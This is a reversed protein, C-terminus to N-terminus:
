RGGLVSPRQELHKEMELLPVGQELWEPAEEGKLYHDLYEMMRVAYDIQNATKRLGHNEGEYQLMIVPKKLRRLTNYYEIGQTFDVAGDEDNHMLLLPTNVNQAFYVPSNRKFAEWNDWYGPTLRGQSSEFIPQNTSGTNWYILSYMSIMNTLPAGAVAARFMDTQTILFSTQYGGWSHGHIAINDPDIVGTELAADVAPLVCWVASMGPDNLKYVIDPMLVAYGNSTYMARNFGGGPFSPRSYSNLGQTLREYIYVVTPYQKGEEYGAPLFLAAQLTDGQDSIFSILRSGPSLAFDEQEPYTQTLKRAGTLGTNESVYFDPTDTVTERTFFYVDEDAAKRLGGYSADDWLLMKAGSRGRDIRAIGSKKTEQDFVRLFLPQRLDIGEEDPDLRFRYQYRRGNREGDMTLNDFRRGNDSVKWVNWNDRILLERSDSTWGLLPTPPYPVNRDNELNVFTTPINETIVVSEATAFTCVYYNGERYWTFKEGDPSPQLGGLMRHKELVLLRQGTALDVIYVDAFNEGSLGGILEYGSNDIGIAYKQKPAVNVSRMEDDALRIFRNERVHYLALYSFNRDANRRNRQVSQLRSDQWHWLILDPKEDTNKAAAATEGNGGVAITDNVATALTDNEATGGNDDKDEKEERENRHIGFIFTNLNDSWYPRRNPSITMEGPFTPDEHPNYVVKEPAGRNFGRLGIVSYVDDKFDDSEEGKLTALGDGERTWSLYRYAAKGSEPSLVEGTQMNRLQLGNGAKGHADTLWALWNGKKDFSFESVNGFNFTNGKRPNVLLLDTGKGADSDQSPKPTTLHVAIWGPNEGSFSFSRVNEYTTEEDNLLDILTMKNAPADGRGAREKEEETPYVTFAVFRSDHSFAIANGAAGRTEGIPFTKKIDGSASQLVMESNGKNPSYWYAFWSGDNSITVSGGHIYKWGAVDQWRVPRAEAPATDDADQNYNLPEGTNYYGSASVEPSNEEAAQLSNHGSLGIILAPIIIGRVIIKLLDM